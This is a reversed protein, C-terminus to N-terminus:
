LAAASGRANVPCPSASSLGSHELPCLSVFLVARAKGACCQLQRDLCQIIGERPLANTLTEQFAQLQEATASAVPNTQSICTKITSKLNGFFLSTNVWALGRQTPIEPKLECLTAGREPLASDQGEAGRAAGAQKLLEMSECHCSMPVPQCCAGHKRPGRLSAALSASETLLSRKAMCCGSQFRM